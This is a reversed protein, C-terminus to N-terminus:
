PGSFIRVQWFELPWADRGDAPRVVQNDFTESASEYKSRPRPRLCSSDRRRVCLRGLFTEQSGGLVGRLGPCGVAGRGAVSGSGYVGLTRSEGGLAVWAVEPGCVM